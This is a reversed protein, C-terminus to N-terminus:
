HKVSNNIQLDSTGTAEYSTKGMDNLVHRIHPILVLGQRAFKEDVRPRGGNWAMDGAHYFFSFYHNNGWVHHWTTELIGFLNEEKATQALATIGTNVEWPCVLVDFGEKKFHRPTEFRTQKKDRYSYQWDAIIIDKTLTKVAKAMEADGMAVDKKWRPDERDLLMDHWIISRAGKTRMFDSFKKLHNVFLPVIPKARCKYCTGKDYAEDCGLHFFPPKGFFEHIETLLDKLVAETKESSMCYSWGLPEYIHELNPHKTLVAHKATSVRCQTAHGLISLQPIPTLGVSWCYDIIKKLGKRDLKKSAFAFEPHSKFPFTGWPELVVYNYKYYSALRVYKEIDELTNEPFMCIHIGRFKLTAWDKVKMQAFVQGTGDRESEAVQRLTKLAQRVAIFDKGAIAIGNTNINTESGEDGLKANDPNKAFSVNPSIRWYQKITDRIIDEQSSTLADTTSIAITSKENLTYYGDFVKVEKPRPSMRQLVFSTTKEDALKQEAFSVSLFSGVCILLCIFRKM